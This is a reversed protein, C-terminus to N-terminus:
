GSAKQKRELNEEADPKRLYLPVITAPDSYKGLRAMEIGCKFVNSARPPWYSEDLVTINETRFEDAYYLLGEGLLHIPRNDYQGKFDEATMLCDDLAKHWTDKQREFVAVFFQGRKADIVTAVKDISDEDINCAMAASTSVATIKIDGALAMMKAVAVSIRLGTFSGPGISIHLNDIEAATKEVKKLMEAMTEFLEASHRLPASFFKEDSLEEGLGLAVSGARGSTELAISLNDSTIAKNQM